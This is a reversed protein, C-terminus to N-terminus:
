CALDEKLEKLLLTFASILDDLALLDESLASMLLVCLVIFSLLRASRLETFLEALDYRLSIFLESLAELEDVVDELELVVELEDVGEVLEELEVVLLELEEVVEDL